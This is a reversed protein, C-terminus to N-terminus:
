ADRYYMNTRGMVSLSGTMSSATNTTINDVWGIVFFPAANLPYYVGATEYKLTKPLKVPLKLDVYHGSPSIIGDTTGATVSASSVPNGFGKVLRVKKHHLVKFADRNIPFKSHYLTGNFDVRGGQGNNLMQIIPIATYNPLSKVSVAELLFVHVTRDYANNDNLSAVEIRLDVDCRVPAITDGIRQYNDTGQTIQPMAAYIESVGTIGSSFGTFNGINTLAGPNKCATAVYKVEVPDAVLKKIEKRQCKTLCKKGKPKTSRRKRYAKKKPYVPM